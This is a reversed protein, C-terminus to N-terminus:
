HEPPTFKWVVVRAPMHVRDEGVFRFGQRVVKALRLDDDANSTKKTLVAAHTGREFPDSVKAEVSVLDFGSLIEEVSSAAATFDEAYAAHGEDQATAAYKTLEAHLEIFQGLVPKILNILQQRQLDEVSALLTRNMAELAHSREDFSERLATVEQLLRVLPEETDGGETPVTDESFDPLHEPEDAECSFPELPIGPQPPTGTPITVTPSTGPSIEPATTREPSQAGDTCTAAESQATEDRHPAGDESNLSGQHPLPFRGGASAQVTEAPVESPQVSVDAPHHNPTVAPTEHGAEDSRSPEDASM